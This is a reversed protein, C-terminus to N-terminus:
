TGVQCPNMQILKEVVGGFDLALFSDVNYLFMM